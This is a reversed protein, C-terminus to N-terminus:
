RMGMMGHHIEKIQRLHEAVAPRVENELLARMQADDTQPILTTDLEKLTQDHAHIQHLVYNVDFDRGSMGRLEALTAALVNKKGLSLANDVPARGKSQLLQMMRQEVAGHQDVMMQAFQRVRQDQARELAVRSTQIEFQNSASGVAAVNPDTFMADVSTGSLAVAGGSETRTTTTTMTEANQASTCAGLAGAAAVAAAGLTRRVTSEKM